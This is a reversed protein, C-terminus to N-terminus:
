LLTIAYVIVTIDFLTDFIPENIYFRNSLTSWFSHTFTHLVFRHFSDSNFPRTRTLRKTRYTPHDSGVVDIHVDGMLILVMLLM